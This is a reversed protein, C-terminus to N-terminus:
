NYEPLLTLIAQNLRSLTEDDVSASCMLYRKLGQPMDPFEVPRMGLASLEGNQNIHAFDEQDIFMYDAGHNLSVMRALKDPSPATQISAQSVGAIARDLEAGYSVYAVIGLKLSDDSLLSALTKHRKVAALVREPALIIHPKDQHIPLSFKAFQEREALKYWSPSCIPQLNRRIDSLIRRVPIEQYHVSVQALEFIARTRDMLFGKPVGAETYSYPPKDRYEVVISAPSADCCICTLLLLAPLLRKPM